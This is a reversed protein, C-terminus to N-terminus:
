SCVTKKQVATKQLTAGRYIIKVYPDSSKAKGMGLFGSGDKAVLDRGAEITIDIEAGIVAGVDRATSMRTAQHCADDARGAGRGRALAEKVVRAASSSVASRAAVVAAM